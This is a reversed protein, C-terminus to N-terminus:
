RARARGLAHGKQDYFYAFRVPAELEVLVYPSTLQQTTLAGPPPSILNLYIEASGDEIAVDRVKVRYGGTPKLGWFFGAICSQKYFAPPLPPRPVRRGQALRWLDEKASPSCALAVYPSRGSYASQTGEALVRWPASLNVMEVGELVRLSARRYVWPAPVFRYPPHVPTAREFVAVARGRARAEIEHRLVAAEDRTMHGFGPRAPEPRLYATQGAELPGGLKYWAEGDFLWSALLDTRTRLYYGRPTAELTVEPALPPLLERYLPMGNVSLAGPVAWPSRSPRAELVLEQGELEVIMPDGYFYVWRESADPTLLEVEHALYYPHEPLLYSCGVLLLPLLFLLKKM